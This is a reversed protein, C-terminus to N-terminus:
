QTAVQAAASRLSLEVVVTRLQELTEADVIEGSSGRDNPGIPVAYHVVDVDLANLVDGLARRRHAGRGPPAVDLV